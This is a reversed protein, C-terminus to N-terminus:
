RAMNRAINMLCILFILVQTAQFYFDTKKESITQAIRSGILGGLISGAVMFPLMTLRYGAFGVSVATQILKAGQSFLITVLSCFTAKKTPFNFMFIILAVNIPGGGIGLFSSCFGLFLGVLLSPIFGALEPSRISSKAQMYVFALVILTALAINQVIVVSQGAIDAILYSLLFSGANGGAVAGIGLPIVTSAAPKEPHHRQRITSVISMSFVTIASLMSISGVDYHAFIDLVPKIIVGGGMGTVAGVTTAALAMLFYFVSM